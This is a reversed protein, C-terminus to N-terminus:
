GTKLGSPSRFFGAEHHANSGQTSVANGNKQWISLSECTREERPAWVPSTVAGSEPSSTSKDEDQGDPKFEHRQSLNKRFNVKNSDQITQARLQSSILLPCVGKGAQFSCGGKQGTSNEFSDRSCRRMRVPVDIRRGINIM